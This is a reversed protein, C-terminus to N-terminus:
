DGHYDSRAFAATVMDHVSRNLRKDMMRLDFGEARFIADTFSDVDPLTARM